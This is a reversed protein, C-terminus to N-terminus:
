QSGSGFADLSSEDPHRREPDAPGSSEGPKFALSGSLTFHSRAQEVLEWAEKTMERPNDPIDHGMKRMRERADVSMRSVGMDNRLARLDDIAESEYWNLADFIPGFEWNRGAPARLFLVGVADLFVDRVEDPDAATEDDRREVDAADKDQWVFSGPELDVADKRAIAYQETKMQRYLRWTGVNEDADFAFRPYKSM